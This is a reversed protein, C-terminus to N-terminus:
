GRSHDNTKDAEPIVASGSDILEMLLFLLMKISDMAAKGKNAAERCMKWIVSSPTASLMLDGSETHIQHAEEMMKALPHALRIRSAQLMPINFEADDKISRPATSSM